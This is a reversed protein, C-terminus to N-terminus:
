SGKKLLTPQAVHALGLMAPLRRLERSLPDVMLGMAELTTM